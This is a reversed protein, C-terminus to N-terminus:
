AESDDWKELDTTIDFLTQDPKTFDLVIDSFIYWEAKTIVSEHPEEYLCCHILAEALEAAAFHECSIRTFKTAFFGSVSFVLGMIDRDVFPMVSYKKLVEYCEKFLSIFEGRDFMNEDRVKSALTEWRLTLIDYDDFAKKM